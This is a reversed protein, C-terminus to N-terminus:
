SLALSSALVRLTAPILGKPPRVGVPGRGTSSPVGSIEPRGDRGDLPRELGEAVQAVDSVYDALHTWRLRDCGESDGHGRLSVAHSSYGHQTFYPLFHESWCWAGHWMGHVFLIPTPRANGSPEQIIVQLQM